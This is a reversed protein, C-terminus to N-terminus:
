GLTAKQEDLLEDCRLWCAGGEYVILDNWDPHDKFLDRVRMGHSFELEELMTASSVREEGDRWRTYLYKIVQRQKDGGFKFTRDGVRIFRFDPSPQIPQDPHLSQGGGVIGAIVDLDLGFKKTGMDFCNHLPIVRHRGPIDTHPSVAANSTLLVGPPRGVRHTLAGCVRNLNEAHGLRRGFLVAIKRKGIWAEGLDWLHGDVLCHPAFRRKIGVGEGLVGILWDLDLIHVKVDEENARVWGSTPSFWRYGRAESDWVLDVPRDDHSSSDVATPSLPGAGFAGCAILSEAEQPFEDHLLRAAIRLTPQECLGLALEIACRSPRHRRDAPPM